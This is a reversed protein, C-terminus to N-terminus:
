SDIEHGGGGGGGMWEFKLWEIPVEGPITTLPPTAELKESLSYM